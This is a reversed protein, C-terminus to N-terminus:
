PARDRAAIQRLRKEMFRREAENASLAIAREADARAREFDGSRRLLEARAAFFPQYAALSGDGALADLDALAAQRDGAMFRAVAANLRVVPSGPEVAELAGYVAAIQGWDTEEYAAARAHVASIMAQLTYYGAEGAALAEELRAMGAAIRERDWLARDQRDLTLLEGNADTRADLRSLHLLMLAELGAVEAAGPLLGGLLRCLRLAEDCLGRRSLTEGATASWGENFILYVVTLVSHLREPLQGPEPVRYPIGADRIKRKARVIRQAMTTEAALFARAIERTGLGCLTKLTLAVQAAPNLAPHCCTFILRLREDPIMEDSDVDDFVRRDRALLAIETQKGAKQREHRLRDISRRRAVTLLWAAPSAPLGDAPWRELARAVADQLADEALALDGFDATLAAALRGWEDRVLAAVTSRGDGTDAGETL